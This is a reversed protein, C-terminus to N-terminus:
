IVHEFFVKAHEYEEYADMAAYDRAIGVAVSKWADSKELMELEDASLAYELSKVDLMGRLMEKIDDDVDDADIEVGFSVRTSSEVTCAKPTIECANEHSRAYNNAARVWDGTRPAYVTFIFFTPTTVADLTESVYANANELRDLHEHPETRSMIALASETADFMQSSMDSRDIGSCKFSEIRM